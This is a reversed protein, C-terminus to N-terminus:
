LCPRGVCQASLGYGCGVGGVEGGWLLTGEAEAVGRATPEGEKSPQLGEEGRELGGGTLHAERRQCIREMPLVPVTM